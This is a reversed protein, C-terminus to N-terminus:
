FTGEEAAPLGDGFEYETLKTVMEEVTMYDTTQSIRRVQDALERVRPEAIKYMQKGIYNIEIYSALSVDDDYRNATALNTAYSAGDERYIRFGFNSGYEIWNTVASTIDVRVWGANTTQIIGITDTVSPINNYNLTEEDWSKTVLRLAYRQEMGTNYVYMNLYAKTIEVDKLTGLDHQYYSFRIDGYGSRGSSCQKNTQAYGVLAGDSQLVTACKVEKAIYIAM